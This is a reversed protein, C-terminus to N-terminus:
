AHRWSSASFCVTEKNFNLFDNVELLDFVSWEMQQKFIIGVYKSHCYNCSGAERSPDRSRRVTESLVRRWRTVTAFISRRCYWRGPVLKVLVALLWQRSPVRCCRVWRESYSHGVVPVRQFSNCVKEWLIVCRLMMMMMMMTRTHNLGSRSSWGTEKLAKVSPKTM